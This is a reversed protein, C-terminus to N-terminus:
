FKMFMQTDYKAEFSALKGQIQKVSHGKLFEIKWLDCYWSINGIKRKVISTYIIFTKKYLPKNRFLHCIWWFLIMNSIFCHITLCLKYFIEPWWGGTICQLMHTKMRKAVRKLELLKTYFLGLDNNINVINSNLKSKNKSLMM